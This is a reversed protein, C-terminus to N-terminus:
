QAKEELISQTKVRVYLNDDHQLNDRLTQLFSEDPKYGRTELSDLGNIAAIRLGPNGDHLLVYLLADRVERDPQYRLIAQLAEKRVADNQDTKLALLLAVKVEREPLASPTASFSGVARIRVGPNDSKVLAYALAKQIRPDHINGRLHVPKVADFSLEVDEASSPTGTFQVNTVSLGGGSALFSNLVADNDSPIGFTRGGLLGLLFLAIGGAAMATRPHLSWSLVHQAQELITPRQRATPMTRQFRLRAEHLLTEDLDQVPAKSLVTHLRRLEDLENVCKNCVELHRDLDREEKASLDGYFSLPLLQQYYRHTHM